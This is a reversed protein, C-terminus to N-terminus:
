GVMFNARFTSNHLSLCTLTDTLSQQPMVNTDLMGALHGTGTGGTM